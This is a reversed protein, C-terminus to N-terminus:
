APVPGLRLRRRVAGAAGTLFGVGWAGHMVPVALVMGPVSRPSRPLRSLAALALGAAYGIAVQRRLPSLLGLLLVPVALQRPSAAAPREVVTEARGRGYALYQRGLARLSARPVYSSAIAPDLWVGRGEGMRMALEADENTAKGPRYGGVARALQTPFAGLYVTDVWRPPGGHRFAAPGAGLRSTMAAAIGSQVWGGAVPRQCGGVMAAGSRDLAEVCRAVYDPALRTRADVRVFVEGAAHALAVNLGDAQLRAPNDLLTVGPRSAAIERTGDASGGDVVLVEVVNGYTQAAVADLCAALNAAEDLVPVAVTVAPRSM